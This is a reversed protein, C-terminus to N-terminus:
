NYKCIDILLKQTDIFGSLIASRKNKDTSHDFEAFNFVFHRRTTTEVQFMRELRSDMARVLGLVNDAATMKLTIEKNVAVTTDSVSM